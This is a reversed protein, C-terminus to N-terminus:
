VDVVKGVVKITELGGGTLDTSIREVVGDVARTGSVIRVHSGTHEWGPLLGGEAIYRQQYYDLLRAAVAPALDPSVLTAKEIKKTFPRVGAPIGQATRTHVTQTDIYVRGFISVPGPKDVQIKCGNAYMKVLTCGSVTGVKVPERFVIDHIGATFDGAIIETAEKALTYSHSIITVQTVLKDSLNVKHGRIKREATIGTPPAAALDAAPRITVMGGSDILVAGIAFLIQQLASRKTGIPLYGNVTSSMYDILEWKIGEPDLISGIVADLPAYRYIGGQHPIDGLMGIISTATISVIGPDQMDTATSLTSAANDVPTSESRLLYYRGVYEEMDDIYRYVDLTQRYQLMAHIGSPDMPDIGHSRFTIDVQSAPLTLGTPDVDSIASASILTSGTLVDLRGFRIASIRLYRDPEALSQVTITVKSYDSVPHDIFVEGNTISPDIRTSMKGLSQGASNYWRVTVDRPLTAPCLLTIGPSSHMTPSGDDGAFTITLEPPITFVGDSGSLDKSWWGWPVERPAAPLWERSGDLPWGFDPELTAVNPMAPPSLRNIDAANAWPQTQSSALHATDAATVDVFGFRVECSTKM